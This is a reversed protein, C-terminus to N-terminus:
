VIRFTVLETKNKVFFLTNSVIFFTGIGMGKLNTGIEESWVPTGNRGFCALVNTFRAPEGKYYAIFVFDGAELYEAGIFIMHKEKQLVFKQVTNFEGEGQVYVFPRLVTNTYEPEPQASILAGNHVNLVMESVVDPNTTTQFVRLVVQNLTVRNINIWWTEPLHTTRWVVKGSFEICAVSVKRTSENREEIVVCSAQPVPILNWIVCGPPTHYVVRTKEIM